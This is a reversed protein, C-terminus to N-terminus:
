GTPKTGAEKAQLFKDRFFNSALTAVQELTGPEEFLHTANPIIVLQKEPAALVNLAWKNMEIVEPDREGVIFLTPARVKKLSEGALDVRGGRSVVAAIRDPIEAAAVLAAAGGTSAGFLGVKLDKTPEHTGLWEASKVLRRALLPIDFRYARSRDDLKEEQATLLDILLTAM